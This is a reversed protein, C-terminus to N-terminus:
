YGLPAGLSVLDAAAAPASRATESDRRAHVRGASWRRAQDFLDANRVKQCFAQARPNGSEATTKLYITPQGNMKFNIGAVPISVRFASGTGTQCDTCHCIMVREPDVEAEITILGCHCAGEVKM